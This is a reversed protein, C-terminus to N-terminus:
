KPLISIWSTARCVKLNSWLNTGYCQSLCTEVSDRYCQRICSAHKSKLSKGDAVARSVSASLDEPQLKSLRQGLYDLIRERTLTDSTMSQRLAEDAATLSTNGETSSETDVGAAKIGDWLLRACFAAQIDAETPQLMHDEDAAIALPWPIVLLIGIILRAWKTKM